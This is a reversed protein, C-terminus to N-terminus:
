GCFLRQYLNSGFIVAGVIASVISSLLVAGASIDLLQRALNSHEQTVMRTMLEVVTNFMEAVLVLGIVLVLVAWEGHSIRLFLGLVVAAIAAAFHFKFSNEIRIAESVGRFACGFKKIIRKM